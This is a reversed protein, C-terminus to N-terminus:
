EHHYMPYCTVGWSWHGHSGHYEPWNKLPDNSGLLLAEVDDDVYLIKFVVLVKEDLRVFRAM